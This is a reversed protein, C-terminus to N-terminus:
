QKPLKFEVHRDDNLQKSFERDVLALSIRNQDGETTIYALTDGDVWYALAPLITHDTLAILYITPPTDPPVFSPEPNGTQPAFMPM